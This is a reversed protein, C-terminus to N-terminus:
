LHTTQSSYKLASKADWNQFHIHAFALNDHVNDHMFCSLTITLIINGHIYIQMLLLYLCLSMDFQLFCIPSFSAEKQLEPGQVYQMGPPYISLSTYLNSVKAVKECSLLLGNQGIRWILSVLPPCLFLLVVPLFYVSANFPLVAIAPDRCVHLLWYYPKM